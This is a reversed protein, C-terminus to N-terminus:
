QKEWDFKDLVDASLLVSSKVKLGLRKARALSIMPVGKVDPKFGYSAPTRGEVLIGRAIRGAALGHQRPSVTVAVLTGLQVRDEWFALDPLRSNEVTWRLVVERSVAAGKADLLGHVGLPWFADASDQYRRVARQYDAFTKVVDTAVLEAGPVTALHTKVLEALALMSPAEDTVIAFRRAGPVIARLLRFTEAVHVPELVGAVNSAGVLGYAAPDKNVGSVVFPLRQGVYHRTLHEQADDDSAYVLDPKWSEILQRAEKGKAQAWALERHRNAEMRLVRYEVAVGEMGQKFAAYQGDSWGMPSHYSMVHLIRYAREAAPGQTQALAPAVVLAAVAAAALLQKMADKMAIERKLNTM